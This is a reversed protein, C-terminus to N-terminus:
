VVRCIHVRYTANRLDRKNVPVFADQSVTTVRNLLQRLFTRQWFHEEKQDVSLQWRLFLLGNKVRRQSFVVFVVAAEVLEARGVVLAEVRERELLRFGVGHGHHAGEHGDEGGKVRLRVGGELADVNVVRLLLAVDVDMADQTHRRSHCGGAVAEIRALINDFRVKRQSIHLVKQM